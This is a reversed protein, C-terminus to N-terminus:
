AGEGLAWLAAAIILAERVTDGLSIARARASPDASDIDALGAWDGSPSRIGVRVTSPLEKSETVVVQLGRVEPWAHLVTARERDHSSM